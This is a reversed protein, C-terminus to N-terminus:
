FSVVQTNLLNKIIPDKYNGGDDPVIAMGAPDPTAIKENFSPEDFIPSSPTVGKKPPKGGKKPPHATGKKSASTSGKKKAMSRRPPPRPGNRSLPLDTAIGPQSACIRYAPSLGPM